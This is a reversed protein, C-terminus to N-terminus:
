QIDHIFLYRGYLYICMHHATIFLISWVIVNGHYTMQSRSIGTTADVYDLVMRELWTTPDVYQRGTKTFYGLHGGHKTLVFLAKKHSETIVNAILMSSKIVVAPLTLMKYRSLVRNQFRLCYCLIYNKSFGGCQWIM